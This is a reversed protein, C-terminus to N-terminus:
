PLDFAFGWMGGCDFGCWGLVHVRGSSGGHVLLADEVSVRSAAPIDAIVDLTRRDLVTLYQRRAESFYYPANPETQIGAVYLLPRVPDVLIDQLVRDSTFSRVALSRGTATELVVVSFRGAYYNDALTDRVSVTAYLTDGYRSFAAGSVHFLTDITYAVNGAQDFVPWITPYSGWFQRYSLQTTVVTWRGGAAMRFQGEFLGPQSPLVTDVGNRVLAGNQSRLLCMGAALEAAAYFGRPDVCPISDVIRLPGSLDWVKAGGAALPSLDFVFHNARYSPGPADIRIDAGRTVALEPFMRLRRGQIDILGYGTTWGPWGYSEGILLGYPPFATGTSVNTYAHLGGWYWPYAEGVAYLAMSTRDHEELWVTLEHNGTYVPPVRVEMATPGVRWSDATDAGVTVVFNAWRNPRPVSDVRPILVLDQFQPSTLTVIGGATQAAPQMTIALPLPAQAPDQCGLAVAAGLLWLLRARRAVNM